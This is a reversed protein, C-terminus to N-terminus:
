KAHKLMKHLLAIQGLHYYGHEIVGEINRRYSGYTKNVFPMELTALDLAEVHNAFQEANTFLTNRLRDWDAEQVLEPADFSFRDKIDLTGGEFVHNIGALYYNIHFTLMGITNLSGVRTTAEQLSIQQLLQKYNTNAIWTGDLLVERFRNALQLSSEM